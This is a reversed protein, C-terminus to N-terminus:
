VWLRRQESNHHLRDNQHHSCAAQLMGYVMGAAGSRGGQAKNRTDGGEVVTAGTGPAEGKAVDVPKGGATHAAGGNEHGDGGTGVASSPGAGGAGSTNGEFAIIVDRCGAPATANDCADGGIDFGNTTTAGGTKEFGPPPAMGVTDEDRIAAAVNEPSLIDDPFGWLENFAANSCFKRSLKQENDALMERANAIKRDLDDLQADAEESLDQLLAPVTNNHVDGDGAGLDGDYLGIDFHIDQLRANAPAPTNFVNNRQRRKREAEWAIVDLRLSYDYMIAHNQPPQMYNTQQLGASANHHYHQTSTTAGSSSSAGGGYAASLLSSMPRPPQQSQPRHTALHHNHGLFTSAGSTIGNSVSYTCTPLNASLLSHPTPCHSAPTLTNATARVQTALAQAHAAKNLRKQQKSLVSTPSPIFTKNNGHLGHQHHQVYQQNLCANYNAECPGNGVPVPWNFGKEHAACLGCSCCAVKTTLGKGVSMWLREPHKANCPKKKKTTDVDDVKKGSEDNVVTEESKKQQPVIGHLRRNMKRQLKQIRKRDFELQRNHDEMHLYVEPLHTGFTTEVATEDKHVTAPLLTRFAGHLRRKFEEPRYFRLTYNTSFSRKFPIFQAIKEVVGRQKRGGLIRPGCGYRRIAKRFRSNMIQLRRMRELKSPPLWLAIAHEAGTIEDIGFLLIESAMHVQKRLNVPLSWYEHVILMVMLCTMGLAALAITKWEPELFHAHFTTIRNDRWSRYEVPPKYEDMMLWPSLPLTFSPRPKPTAMPTKSPPPSHSLVLHRVALANNAREFYSASKPGIDLVKVPTAITHHVVAAAHTAKQACSWLVTHVQIAMLVIVMFAM